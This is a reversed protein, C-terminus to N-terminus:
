LLIMLNYELYAQPVSKNEIKSLVKQPIYEIGLSDFYMDKVKNTM